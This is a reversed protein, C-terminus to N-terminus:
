LKPLRPAPCLWPKKGEWTQAFHSLICREGCTSVMDFSYMARLYDEESIVSAFSLAAVNETSVGWTDLRARKSVSISSMSPPCTVLDRLAVDYVVDFVVDTVSIATLNRLAVDHVRRMCPLAAARGEGCM